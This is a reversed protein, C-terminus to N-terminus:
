RVILLSISLLLTFFPITIVSSGAMAVIQVLMFCRCTKDYLAQLAKAM